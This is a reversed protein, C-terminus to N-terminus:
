NTRRRYRSTEANALILRFGLARGPRAIRVFERAVEPQETKMEAFEDVIVVLYPLPM